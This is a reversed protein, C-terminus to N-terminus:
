NGSSFDQLIQVVNQKYNSLNIGSGNQVIKFGNIPDTGMPSPGPSTVWHLPHVGNDVETKHSESETNTKGVDTKDTKSKMKQELCKIDTLTTKM